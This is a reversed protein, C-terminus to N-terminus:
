GATKRAAKEAHGSTGSRRELEALVDGPSLGRSVLLVLTHYWLDAIEHVLEGDSGGKGAIITEGAEEAIKKLIGDPAEHLLKATYSTSPDADVRSALTRALTELTDQNVTPNAGNSGTTFAADYCLV